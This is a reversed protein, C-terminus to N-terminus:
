GRQMRAFRRSGWGLVVVVVLVILFSGCRGGYDHEGDVEIEDGGASPPRRRDRSRDSLQQM